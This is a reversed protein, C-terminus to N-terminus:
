RQAPIPIPPVSVAIACDACTRSYVFAASTRLHKLIKSELKRGCYQRHQGYSSCYSGTKVILLLLNETQRVIANVPSHLV